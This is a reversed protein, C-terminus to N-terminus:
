EDWLIYYQLPIRFVAWSIRFGVQEDWKKIRSTHIVQILGLNDLM